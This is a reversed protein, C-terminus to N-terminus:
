VSRAGRALLAARWGDVEESRFSVHVHGTAEFPADTELILTSDQTAVEINSLDEGAIRLPVPFVLYLGRKTLVVEGPKRSTASLNWGPARYGRLRLSLTTGMSRRELGEEALRAIARERLGRVARVIAAVLVLAFACGVIALM